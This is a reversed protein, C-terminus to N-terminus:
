KFAGLRRVSKSAFTVGVPASRMANKIMSVFSDQKSAMLLEGMSDFGQNGIMYYATARNLGCSTLATRIQNVAPARGAM